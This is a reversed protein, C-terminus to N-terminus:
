FAFLHCDHRAEAMSGFTWFSQLIVLMVARIHTPVFELYLAVAVHAGGLGVGVLGRTVLLWQAHSHCVNAASSSSGQNGYSVSPSSAMDTPCAPSLVAYSPALASLLSTLFTFSATSFFGARRGYVDSVAGFVYAGVGAYQRIM